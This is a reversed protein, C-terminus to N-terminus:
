VRAKAENHLRQITAYECPQGPTEYWGPGLQLDGASPGMVKSWQDRVKEPTLDVDFLGDHSALVIRSVRGGAASIFEGSVPSSEHLLYLGAIAINAAPLNEKWWRAFDNGDGVMDTHCMPMMLNVNINREAGFGAMQRTLGYAGAKAFAYASGWGNPARWGLSVHSGFNLVRGGGAAEFHPVAAQFFRLWAKAHVAVQDDFAQSVGKEVLLTSESTGACNVLIDLRGFAEVAKAVAADCVESETVSGNFAIASGGAAIVEAVVDAEPGAGSERYNGLVVVGCGRRALLRCYERGIGRGGGTVLAVRGTFSLDGALTEEV